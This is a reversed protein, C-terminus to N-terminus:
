NSGESGNVKKNIAIRTKNTYSLHRETFNSASESKTLNAINDPSCKKFCVDDSRRCKSLNLRLGDCLDFLAVSSQYDFDARDKVPLLQDFNGAIIFKINPKLNKFVLINIFCKM